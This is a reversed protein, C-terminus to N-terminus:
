EDKLNSESIPILTRSIERCIMGGPRDKFACSASKLRIAYDQNFPRDWNFVICREGSPGQMEGDIQAGYNGFQSGAGNEVGLPLNPTSVTQPASCACLMLATLIVRFGFPDPSRIDGTQNQRFGM